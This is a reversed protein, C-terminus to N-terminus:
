GGDTYMAASDAARYAVPNKAASITACPRGVSICAALKMRKIVPSLGHFLSAEHGDVAIFRRGVDGVQAVLHHRNVRDGGRRAQAFQGVGPGGGSALVDEAGHGVHDFHLALGPGGARDVARQLGPRQRGGERGRLAQQQHDGVHELDGAFQGRRDEVHRGARHGGVGQRDEAVVAVHHGAARRAPRHERRGRHLLRLVHGQDGVAGREFGAHREEVEVVAEADRVFHVLDLLERFVVHLRHDVHVQDGGVALPGKRGLPRLEAARGLVRVHEELGALRAVREVGVHAPM